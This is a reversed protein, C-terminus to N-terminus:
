QCFGMAYDLAQSSGSLSFNLTPTQGNVVASVSSGAKMANVLADFEGRSVNTGATVTIGGTPSWTGNFSYIAGDVLYTVVASGATPISTNPSFWIVPSTDGISGEPCTVRIRSSDEGTVAAVAIGQVYGTDWSQASASVPMLSVMAALSTTLTPNM